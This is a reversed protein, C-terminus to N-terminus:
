PRPPNKIRYILVEKSGKDDISNLKCFKRIDNYPIKKLDEASLSGIDITENAVVSAPVVEDNTITEPLDENLVITTSTDINHKTNDDFTADDVDVDVDDDVDITEMIKTLEHSGVSVVDEDENIKTPPMPHQQANVIPAKQIEPVKQPPASQFTLMPLISTTINTISQNLKDIDQGMKKVESHIKKVDSITYYLYVVIFAIAFLTIISMHNLKAFKMMNQIQFILM